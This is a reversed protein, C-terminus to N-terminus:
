KTDSAHEKYLKVFIKFYKCNFLKEQCKAIVNKNSSGTKKNIHDMLFSANQYCCSNLFYYVCFVVNEYNEFLSHGCKSKRCGAKVTKLCTYINVVTLNWSWVLKPLSKTMWTMLWENLWWHTSKYHSQFLLKQKFANSQVM